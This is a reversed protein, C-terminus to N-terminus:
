RQRGRVDVLGARPLFVLVGDSVAVESRMMQFRVIVVRAFPRLDFVVILVHDPNVARGREFRNVLSIQDRQGDGNRVLRDLDFPVPGDGREVRRRRKVARWPWDREVAARRGEEGSSIQRTSVRRGM